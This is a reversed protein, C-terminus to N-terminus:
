SHQNKRYKWMKGLYDVGFGLLLAIIRYLISQAEILWITDSLVTIIAVAIFGNVFCNSWVEYTDLGFKKRFIILHIIAGIIASIGTVIM